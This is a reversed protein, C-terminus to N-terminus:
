KYIEKLVYCCGLLYSVGGIAAFVRPTRVTPDNQWMKTVFILGISYSVIIRDLLKGM